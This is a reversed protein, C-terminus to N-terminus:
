PNIVRLEGDDKERTGLLLWGIGSDKYNRDKRVEWIGPVNCEGTCGRGDTRWGLNMMLHKADNFTLLQVAGTRWLSGLSSWRSGTLPDEHGTAWHTVWSGFEMKSGTKKSWEQYWPGYAPNQPIRAILGFDASLFSISTDEPGVSYSLPPLLAPHLSCSFQSVTLGWDVTICDVGLLLEPTPFPWLQESM